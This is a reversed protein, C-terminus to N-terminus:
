PFYRRPIEVELNAQNRKGEVSLADIYVLYQMKMEHRLAEKFYEILDFKIKVLGSLNLPTYDDVEQGYFNTEDFFVNRKVTIEPARVVIPVWNSNSSKSEVNYFDIKSENNLRIISNSSNSNNTVLTILSNKDNLLNVTMNFGNPVSMGLYDQRSHTSPLM